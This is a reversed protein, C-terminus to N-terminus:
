GLKALDREVLVVKCVQLAGSLHRGTLEQAFARGPAKHQLHRVRLAIQRHLGNRDGGISSGISRGAAQGFPLAMPGISNLALDGGIIEGASAGGVAGAAACITTVWVHAGVEAAQSALSQPTEHLIPVPSPM